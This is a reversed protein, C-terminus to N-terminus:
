LGSIRAEDLELILKWGTLLNQLNWGMKERFPMEAEGTQVVVESTQIKIM